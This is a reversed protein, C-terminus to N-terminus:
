KWKPGGFWGVLSKRVGSKLPRVRHKVTSPFIVAFGVPAKYSFMGDGTLLQLEGGEYEEPHSLFLSISLKRFISNDFSSVASDTHWSCKSDKGDYITYQIKECWQSVDFHYLNKNAERIWHAMVGSIWHDTDLWVQKSKRRSNDLFTVAEGSSRMEPSLADKKYTSSDQLKSEFSECQDILQSLVEPPLCSPVHYFISNNTIEYDM